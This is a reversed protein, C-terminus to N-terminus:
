PKPCGGIHYHVRAASNYRLRQPADYQKCTTCHLWNADGCAELARQRQHLLFHYARDPCIVFNEPRNDQKDGNVHHVEETGRLHRGLVREAILIHQYVYKRARARPHDPAYEVVYGNVTHVGGTWSGNREKTCLRRGHGQVFRFPQGKVRGRKPNTQKAIPALQGCGCQCYM